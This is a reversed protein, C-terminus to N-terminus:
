LHILFGMLILKDLSYSAQFYSNENTSIDSKVFFFIVINELAKGFSNKFTGYPFDVSVKLESNSNYNIELFKFGNDVYQVYTEKDRINLPTSNWTIDFWQYVRVDIDNSLTFNTWDNGSKHVSTTQAYSILLVSFLIIIVLKKRM